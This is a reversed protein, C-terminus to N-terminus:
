APGERLELDAAEPRVNGKMAADDVVVCEEIGAHARVQEIPNSLGADAMAELTAAWAYHVYRDNRRVEKKPMIADADFGKLEGAVKSPTRVPDFLTIRGIGSRGNVLSDWFSPVDNGIPTLAGMGTVVVRREGDRM